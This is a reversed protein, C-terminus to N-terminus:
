GKRIDIEPFATIMRELIVACYAPSIELGYCKRGLNQAAVMTTGSGLFGDFVMCGHFLKLADSIMRVPKQTPHVRKDHEGERIMGAWVQKLVRAPANINTWMMECDAFNNSAMDGRKDWVVWCSSPPLFDTFYNGGWLGIESFGFSVCLEYFRKATDTTEDGVVKSYTGTKAANDGGVKGGDSVVSIGYPPDTMVVGADEGGMLRGVGEANTSDGCLLKHDGILWLDGTKVNWKENLEEARDVQPEADAEGDQHEQLMLRELEGADFGTLDMDMSGDDLEQLLDKLMANDPEALEAIRNDAIMDAYEAAETEYDQYEIPVADLQLLQAAQLRGHGKVIFGSRRSVVIPNRWGQAKVIKALLAIQKDPHTNPNRPHATVAEIQVAEDYRCWVPITAITGRPTIADPKPKMPNREKQQLQETTM